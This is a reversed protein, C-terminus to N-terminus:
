IDGESFCCSVRILLKIGELFYIKKKVKDAVTKWFIEVIYFFFKSDICFLLNKKRM